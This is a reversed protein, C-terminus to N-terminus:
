SERLRSERRPPQVSPQPMAVAFRRALEDHRRGAAESKSAHRHDCVRTDPCSLLSNLASRVGIARSCEQGLNSCCANPQPTPVAGNCHQDVPVFLHGIKYVSLARHQLRRFTEGGVVRSAGPPVWGALWCGHLFAAVGLAGSQGIIRQRHIAM